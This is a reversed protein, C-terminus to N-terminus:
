RSAGDDEPTERQAGESFPAEDRRDERPRGQGRSRGRGRGTYDEYNPLLDNGTRGAAVFTAVKGQSNRLRVEPEPVFFNSGIQLGAMALAKRLMEDGDNQANAARNLEFYKRSLSCDVKNWWDCTLLEQSFLSGVPCLFSSVLVEDCM